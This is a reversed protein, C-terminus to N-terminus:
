RYDRDNKRACLNGKLNNGGSFVPGTGPTAEKKVPLPLSVPLRFLSLSPSLLIEIGKTSVRLYHGHRLARDNREIEERVSTEGEEFIKQFM